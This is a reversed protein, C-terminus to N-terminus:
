NGLCAENLPLTTCDVLWHNTMIAVDLFDVKCDGNLDGTLHYPCPPIYAIELQPRNNQNPHERTDFRKASISTERGQLLWGFNIEPHDVWSQVDAIM